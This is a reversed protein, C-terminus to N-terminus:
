FIFIYISNLFVGSYYGRQIFAEKDDGVLTMFLKEKVTWMDTM